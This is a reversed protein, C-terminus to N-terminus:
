MAGFMHYVCGGECGGAALLRRPASSCSRGCVGVKRGREGGGVNGQMGEGGATSRTDDRGDGLEFLVEEFVLAVDTRVQNNRAHIGCADM